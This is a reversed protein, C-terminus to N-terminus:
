CGLLDKNLGRLRCRMALLMNDLNEVATSYEHAHVPALYALSGHCLMKGDGKVKVHLCRCMIM